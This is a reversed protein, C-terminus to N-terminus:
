VSFLATLGSVGVIADAGGQGIEIKLNDYSAIYLVSTATLVCEGLNKKNRTLCM